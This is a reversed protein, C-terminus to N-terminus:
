AHTLSQILSCSQSYLLCVRRRLFAAHPSSAPRSSHQLFLPPLCPAPPRCPSPPLLCELLRHPSHLILTFSAHLFPTFATVLDGGGGGGDLMSGGGGGGSWRWWRRGRRQWSISALLRSPRRKVCIRGEQMGGANPTPTLTTTRTITRTPRHTPPQAHSPRSPPPPLPRLLVQAPRSLHGGDGPYALGGYTAVRRSSSRESAVDM